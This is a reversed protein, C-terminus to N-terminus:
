IEKYTMRLKKLLQDEDYETDGLGKSMFHAGKPKDNQIILKGNYSENM